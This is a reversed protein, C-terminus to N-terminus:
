RHCKEEGNRKGALAATAIVPRSSNHVIEFKNCDIESSHQFKESGTAFCGISSDGQGEVTPRLVFFYM